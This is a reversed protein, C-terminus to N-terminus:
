YPTNRLGKISSYNAKKFFPLCLLLPCYEYHTFTLPPASPLPYFGSYLPYAPVHAPDAMGRGFPKHLAVPVLHLIAHFSPDKFSASGTIMVDSLTLSHCGGQYNHVGVRKM